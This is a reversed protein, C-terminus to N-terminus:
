SVNKLVEKRYKREQRVIQFYRKVLYMIKREYKRKESELNRDRHSKAM